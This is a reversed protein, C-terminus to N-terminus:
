AKIVINLFNGTYGSKNLHFRKRAYIVCGLNLYLIKTLFTRSNRSYIRYVVKIVPINKLSCKSSEPTSPLITNLHIKLFNTLPHVYSPNIHSLIPVPPPCTNIRYHVKPNLLIRLIEQSASFIDAESSPSQKM